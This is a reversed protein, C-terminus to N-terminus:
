MSLIFVCYNLYIRWVVDKCVLHKYNDTQEVENEQICDMRRYSKLTGMNTSIM